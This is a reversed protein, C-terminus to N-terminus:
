NIGKTHRVVSILPHTPKEVELLQHIESISKIQLIDKM